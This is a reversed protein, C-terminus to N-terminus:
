MDDFVNHSFDYNMSSEPQQLFYGQAYQIGSSWILPLLHLDEIESIVITIKRAKLDILMKKMETQAKHDTNLQEFVSASLKVYNFPIEKLLEVTRANGSFHQLSFHCELKRYQEIFDYTSEPHDLLAQESIEFVLPFYELGYRQLKDKCWESFDDEQVTRASLNIFFSTSSVTEPNESCLRMVQEIVWCDLRYNLEHESLADFIKGSPIVEGKVDYIRMLVEYRKHQDKQFGVIPQFYLKILGNEIAYNVKELLLEPVEPEKEQM